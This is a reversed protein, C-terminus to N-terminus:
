ILDDEALKKGPTAKAGVERKLLRFRTKGNKLEGKGMFNEGLEGLELDIWELVEFGEKIFVASAGPRAPVFTAAGYADAIANIHATLQRM